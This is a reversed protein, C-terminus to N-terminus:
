NENGALPILVTETTLLSVKISAFPSSSGFCKGIYFLQHIESNLNLKVIREFCLELICQM